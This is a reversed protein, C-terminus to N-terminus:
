EQTCIFKHKQLCTLASMIDAEEHESTVVIAEVYEMAMWSNRLDEFIDEALVALELDIGKM